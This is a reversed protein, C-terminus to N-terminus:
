TWGKEAKEKISDLFDDEWDSLEANDDISQQIRDIIKKNEGYRELLRDLRDSM